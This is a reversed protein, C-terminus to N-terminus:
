EFVKLLEEIKESELKAEATLGAREFLNALDEGTTPEFWSDGELCNNATWDYDVAQRCVLHLYVQSFYSGDVGASYSYVMGKPIPRLCLECHYPKRAKPKTDKLVGYISM